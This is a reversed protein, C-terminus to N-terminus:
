PHEIPIDSATQPERDGSGIEPYRSIGLNIPEPVRHPVTRRGLIPRIRKVHRLDCIKRAIEVNMVDNGDITAVDDERIRAEIANRGNRLRVTELLDPPRREDAAEGRLIATM